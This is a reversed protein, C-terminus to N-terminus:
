AAEPPTPPQSPPKPFGRLLWKLRQWLPMHVFQNHAGIIMSVVRRTERHEDILQNQNHVVKNHDRALERFGM